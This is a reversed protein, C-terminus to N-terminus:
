RETEMAWVDDVSAGLTGSVRVIVSWWWGEGVPLGEEWGTVKWSLSVCRVVM